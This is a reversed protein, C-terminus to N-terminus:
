SVKSLPDLGYDFLVLDLEIVNYTKSEIFYRVIIDTQSIPSFAYGALNMFDVAEDMNLRLGLVLAMVKDKSPVIKGALLKSFYQKSINAAAYVEKATLGKKNMLQTLHKAFTDTYIEKLQDELSSDSVAKEAMAMSPAAMMGDESPIGAGSALGNVSDDYEDYDPMVDAHFSTSEVRNRRGGFAFRRSNKYEAKKAKEVYNDDVYSKVDDFIRGSIHYAGPGFVALTIDMDHDQLFDTFVNIATQIGVGEPYGYSGTALLPFAISACGKEDALALSKEYCSRLVDLEGHSGDVWYTGVAHIIYKADLGFAPTIAAEGPKMPGIEARAALLEDRGAANYVASDVGSGVAVAPNATNVVADAKIKTIDQRVISFPM